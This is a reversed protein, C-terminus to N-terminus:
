SKLEDGGQKMWVVKLEAQHPAGIIHDYLNAKRARRYRYGGSLKLKEPELVASVFQDDLDRCEAIIEGFPDIIMSCGNKLQDDDM